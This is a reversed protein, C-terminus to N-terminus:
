EKAQQSASLMAGYVLIAQGIAVYRADKIEAETREDDDDGLSKTLHEIGAEWMERTPKVPVMVMGDAVAERKALATELEEIRDAAISALSPEGDDRMGAVGRLRSVVVARHHSKIPDDSMM